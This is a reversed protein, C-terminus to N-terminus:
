DYYQKVEEMLSKIFIQNRSVKHKEVEKLAAEDKSKHAKIISIMDMACRDVEDNIVIYDYESIFRVEYAAEDLRRKLTEETETGRGVLRTELEKLSPPTIFISVCEHYLKKVNVAGVVNIELVVDKGESLKKEVESKLTGYYNTYTKTYELFAEAQINREFEEESMFYYNVGHVEGPRPARSTASVSFALNPLADFVKKLVTGKGAGSSGSIVIFLGKSSM